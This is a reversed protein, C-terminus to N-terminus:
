GFVMKDYLNIVGKLRKNLWLDRQSWGNDENIVM